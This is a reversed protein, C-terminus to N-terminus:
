EFVISQVITDIAQKLAAPTTADYGGDIAVLTGNVDFLYLRETLGGNTSASTGGSFTWIPLLAGNTCTATTTDISNKIVVFKGAQGGIVIDSVPGATFGAMHTLAQTLADLTHPTLTTPGGSSHCPDAFVGEVLDVAVGGGGGVPSFNADGGVLAKITWSAPLTLRFPKGFPTAVRYTGAALSRDLSSTDLPAPSAVPAATPTPIPSSSPGTGVGSRPLLNIGAVVAVIVAAAAVALRFPNSMPSLRWASRYPRRQPTTPLYELVADLVRDPVRDAGEELWSRVIRTVDPERTM